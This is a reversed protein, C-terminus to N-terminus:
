PIQADLSGGFSVAKSSLLYVCEDDGDRSETLTIKSYFLSNQNNLFIFLYACHSYTSFVKPVLTQIRDYVTTIVEHACVNDELNIVNHIHCINLRSMYGCKLLIAKLLYCLIGLFLSLNSLQLKNFCIRPDLYSHYFCIGTRFVPFRIERKKM